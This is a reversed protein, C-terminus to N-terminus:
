KEPLSLTLCKVNGTEVSFFFCVSLPEVKGNEVSLIACPEVMMFFWMRKETDDVLPM